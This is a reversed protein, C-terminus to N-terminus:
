LRHPYDKKFEFDDYQLLASCDYPDTKCAQLAKERTNYLPLYAAAFSKNKSIESEKDLSYSKGTAIFFVFIDRGFENPLRDGNIDFRLDVCNGLHMEATSGDAFYIKTGKSKTNDEANYIGKEVKLCKIYPALYKNWYAYNEDNETQPDMNGDEDQYNRVDIWEYAPTGQDNEALILAQQMMSSFKKLRASAEKKKHNAILAPMTLAAVIGIIGLTVLVETLTFAM